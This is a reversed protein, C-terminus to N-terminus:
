SIGFKGFLEIASEDNTFATGGNIFNIDETIDIPTSFDIFWGFADCIIIITNNLDNATDDPTYYAFTRGLTLITRRKSNISPSQTKRKCTSSAHHRFRFESRFDAVL